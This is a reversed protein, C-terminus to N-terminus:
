LGLNDILMCPTLNMVAAAGAIGGIAHAFDLGIDGVVHIAELDFDGDWNPVDWVDPYITRITEVYERLMNLLAPDLRVVAMGDTVAGRQERDVVPVVPMSPFGPAIPIRQRKSRKVSVGVVRKGTAM